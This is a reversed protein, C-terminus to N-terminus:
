YSPSTSLPFSLKKVQSQVSSNCAYNKQDFRKSIEAIIADLVPFFITVKYEQDCSVSERLGISDCIIGYEFRKPLRKQRTKVPLSPEIGNLEAVSVAYQYFKSWM